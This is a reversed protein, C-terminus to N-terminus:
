QCAFAHKRGTVRANQSDKAQTTYLIDVLCGDSLGLTSTLANCRSTPASETALVGIHRTCVLCFRLSAPHQRVARVMLETPIRVLVLGFDANEVMLTQYATQRQTHRTQTHTQDQLHKAASLREGHSHVVLTCKEGHSDIPQRLDVDLPLRPLMRGDALPVVLRASRKVSRLM